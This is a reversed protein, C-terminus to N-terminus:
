SFDKQFSKSCKTESLMKLRKFKSWEDESVTKIWLIFNLGIKPSQTDRSILKVSTFEDNSFIILFLHSVAIKLKNLYVHFVEQILSKGM